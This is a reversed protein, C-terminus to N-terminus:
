GRPFSKNICTLNSEVMLLYLVTIPSYTEISHYSQAVYADMNHFLQCHKLMVNCVDVFFIVTNYIM